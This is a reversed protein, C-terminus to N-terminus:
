WVGFVTTKLLMLVYTTYKSDLHNSVAIDEFDKKFRAFSQLDNRFTPNKIKESKTINTNHNRM